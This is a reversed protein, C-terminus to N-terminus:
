LKDYGHQPSIYDDTFSVGVGSSVADDLYDEDDFGNGMPGGREYQSIRNLSNARRGRPGPPGAGPGARGSRGRPGVPGAGPPPSAGAPLTNTRRDAESWKTQWIHRYRLEVRLSDYGMFPTWDKDVERKYFWRVQLNKSFFHQRM